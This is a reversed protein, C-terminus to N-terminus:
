WTGLTIAKWSVGSCDKQGATSLDEGDEGEVRGEAALQPAQAGVVRAAVEAEVRHAELRVVGGLELLHLYGFGLGSGFGLGLLDVVAAEGHDGHGAHDPLLEGGAVLEELPHQGAYM